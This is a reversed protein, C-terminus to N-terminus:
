ISDGSVKRSCFVHSLDARYPRGSWWTFFIVPIGEPNGCDEVYLRHTADVPLHFAQRVPMDNQIMAM